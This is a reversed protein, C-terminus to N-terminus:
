IRRQSGSELRCEGDTKALDLLSQFEDWMMQAHGRVLVADCTQVLQSRASTLRGAEGYMVGVRSVQRKTTAHLYMEVRSEEERLRAEAKRMYDTVSNEAIFTESEAKYYIETAVLFPREFENRYVDLNQRTSDSEDLGLSVPRPTLV